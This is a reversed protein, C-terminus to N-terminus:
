FGKVADLVNSTSTGDEMKKVAEPAVEAVKQMAKESKILDRLREPPAEVLQSPATNTLRLAVEEPELTSGFALRVVQGQASELTFAAEGVKNNLPKLISAHVLENFNHRSGAFEVEYLSLGAKDFSRFDINMVPRLGIFEKRLLQGTEYNPLGLVELQYMQTPSKLHEAFFEKSFENGIIAGIAELAQDEDPWTTKKPVKNNYLLEEGTRTDICKVSWSTLAYKSVIVNSPPLKVSIKKFKAEGKIFFDAAMKRQASVTTQVQNEGTSKSMLEAELATVMEESWVRYGFGKIHEKLINEAVDSRIVETGSSRDADRVFVAVSIRPDGVEKLLMRRESRSTQQLADQVGGVYVECKMLLHAFGDEGVWPNSEKIIRKILGNSRSLVQDRILTYNEMLTNTEVFAGVAKELCQSKADRRLDELMLGKDRQYTEANPDALGEASVVITQQHFSQKAAKDAAASKGFSVVLICLIIAAISFYRSAMYM